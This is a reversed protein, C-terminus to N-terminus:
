SEVTVAGGAKLGFRGAADSKNIFIELRGDGNILGCLEGPGGEAYFRKFAAEEGNVTIKLTGRKMQGEIDRETIDTIANGFGDIHIIEGMVAGGIAGAKSTEITVLDHAIPGLSSASVGKSIWAAAPAFIDRGHFTGGPKRGFRPMYDENTIEFAYFGERNNKIVTSFVGNDPGIFYHGGASLAIPRRLSGVGPDVVVVHISGKPYYAHSDSIAMDAERINHRSIMHTIDAIAANPNIGLIVGKMMGIFADRLGFDSTLTIIARPYM